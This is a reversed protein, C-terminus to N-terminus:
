SSPAPNTTGPARPRFAHDPKPCPCERSYTDKKGCWSCFLNPANKCDQRSHGRQGCRWCCETRKYPVNIANIRSDTYTRGKAYATEPMLTQNIAPPAKFSKEKALLREYEDALRIIDSITTVEHRHIYHQYEPRLNLHIRDVQRREPMTGLRRMLTHIAIIFDKASERAGQTRNKIEEELQMEIDGPLFFAKLDETFESWRRWNKSNNRHWQLAKGKLLIPICELLQHDAIHVSMRMEEIRELFTLVSKEGDFTADWRRVQNAVIPDDDRHHPRIDSEIERPRRTPQTTTQQLRAKIDAMMQERLKALEARVTDMIIDDPDQFLSTRATAPTQSERYEEPQPQDAPEEPEEPQEPQNNSSQNTQTAAQKKKLFGSLMQRMNVVTTNPEWEINFRRLESECEAKNLKWVYSRGPTAEEDTM